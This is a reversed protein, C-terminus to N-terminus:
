APQAVLSSKVASAFTDIDYPKELVGVAGADSLGRLVEDSAFGTVLLVRLGPWRERASRLVTMGDMDPLRVDLVVLDCKGQERDLVRLAETGDDALLVRYGCDDLVIQSMRLLLPDDEVVLISAPQTREALAVMTTESGVDLPLAEHASSTGLIGPRHMGVDLRYGLRLPVAVVEM